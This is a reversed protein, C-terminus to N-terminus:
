SDNKIEPRMLPFFMVDRISSSSTLLMVLRDVGIGLGATPPMGHELANIYEEDMQHAEEDGNNYNDLQEEFRKKQDIPDNLESFANAIEHGGIFLEFRDAFFPDSDKRRALPSVESPFDYIFTPQILNPEVLKEFLDIIIKGHPKGNCDERLITEIYEITTNDMKRLSDADPGGFKCISELMSIRSFPEEIDIEHGLWNVKNFVGVIMNHLYKILEECLDMFKIYDSYAEYIEVTTFEPNHTTNIGENRFCRNVEFVKNFGGIILRKLYLEPAIRLFLDMNLTNHHTVFPKAAAGGAIPHLMPTEVEIFVRSELFKRILSVIGSRKIFVDRSEKNSILDLHRHRYRTEVDSLGHWKDPLPRLAKTLIKVRSASISLEGKMTRMPLGEIGIIDGIDIYKKVIDFEEKGLDNIKVVVQLLNPDAIKIFIVKGMHRFFTVRGAVKHVPADLVELEERTYSHFYDIFYESTIDPSFDNAYPNIGINNLESAKILRREFLQDSM